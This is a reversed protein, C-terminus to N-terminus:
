RDFIRKYAEKKCKRYEVNGGYFKIRKRVCERKREGAGARKEKEIVINTIIQNTRFKGKNIM